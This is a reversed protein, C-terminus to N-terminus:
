FKSIPCTISVDEVGSLVPPSCDSSFESSDLSDSDYVFNLSMKKTSTKKPSRPRERLPESVDLKSGKRGSKLEWESDSEHGKKKWAQKSETPPSKPDWEMMQKLRRECRKSSMLEEKRRTLTMRWFMILAEKQKEEALAKDRELGDKVLQLQMNVFSGLEDFLNDRNEGEDITALKEIEGPVEETGPIEEQNVVSALIERGDDESQSSVMLDNVVNESCLDKLRKEHKDYVQTDDDNLDVNGSPLLLQRGIGSNLLREDEADSGEDTSEESGNEEERGISPPLNEIFQPQSHLLVEELCESSKEQLEQSSSDDKNSRTFKQGLICVKKNAFAPNKSTADHDDRLTQDVNPVETIHADDPEIINLRVSTKHQQAGLSRNPMVQPTLVPVHSALGPEQLSAGSKKLTLDQANEDVGSFSSGSTEAGQDFLPKIVLVNQVYNKSHEAPTPESDLAAAVVSEISELSKWLQKPNFGLSQAQCSEVRNLNSSPSRIVNASPLRNAATSPLHSQNSPPHSTATSPPHNSSLQSAATLPLSCMNSPQQSAATSPLHDVNSSTHNATTLQLLSTTSSERSAATSPLHGISSSLPRAATLLLHSMSLSQRSAATSPLNYGVSSLIHGSATLPLHGLSSSQHTAATSPLHGMSSPLHSAATSPLCSSSTSLMHSGPIPHSQCVSTSLLRSVAFSPPQHSAATSPKLHISVISPPQTQHSAGTSIVAPQSWKMDFHQLQHTVTASTIQSQHSTVGAPILQFKMPTQPSHENIQLPQHSVSVPQPQSPIALVSKAGSSPKHIMVIPRQQPSPTVAAQSQSASLRVVNQQSNNSEESLRNLAQESIKQLVSYQPPPPSSGIQHSQIPRDILSIGSSSSSSYNSTQKETPSQFIQACSTRMSSSLHGAEKTVSIESRSLMQPFQNVQIQHSSNSNKPIEKGANQLSMQHGSNQRQQFLCDPNTPLMQSCPSVNFWLQSHQDPEMVTQYGSDPSQQSHDPKSFNQPHFDPIHKLRNGQLEKESSSSLCNLEQQLEQKQKTQFGQRQFEQMENAQDQQIQSQQAMKRRLHDMLMTQQMQNLPVPNHQMRIDPHTARQQMPSGLMPGQSVPNHQMRNDPLTARQQMPSGQSVPNHQMQNDPLTARQQMPSGQSVPNHQMQNDPLTARQQMPSGQSLPNHQMRNDPLTARQQMPSGVMSGQSVPNHQMRNDLLIARQQMPSGLMPGQSVPNHQMRNDLLTARQQMPSGVMSGQSVPNHQMRNDLLIARQQMPSGLMPGQSVPNHQMRNDLLIARQQMPSGLMPGQSVPNQQMRNDPLTARQQMPSGLMPGQSVPNHQMRNDPFTARQQMPSDVKTDLHMRIEPVTPKQQMQDTLRQQNPSQQMQNASTIIHQMQSSVTLRPQLQNPVTPGLQTPNAMTVRQQMHSAVTSSPPMQNTSASVMSMQNDARQQVQSALKLRLLMQNAVAPINQMDIAVKQQNQNALTPRHQVEDAKMPKLQIQSALSTSQHMENTAEMPRQQRQNAVQLFINRNDGASPNTQRIPSNMADPPRAPTQTQYSQQSSRPILQTFVTPAQGMSFENKVKIQPRTSAQNSPQLGEGGGSAPPRLHGPDLARMMTQPQQLRVQSPTRYPVMQCSNSSTPENKVNQPSPNMGQSSPSPRIVRVGARQFPVLQMNVQSSNTSPTTPTTPPVNGIMRPQAHRQPSQPVNSTPPTMQIANRIMGPQMQNRPSQPVNGAPSAMQIANQAMRPRTQNQPSRPENGTPPAMQIANRIPRPQMQSRPSQLVNGAPSAMQIANQVMRPRTQNQPSQLENGAPPTMQIANRIMRPQM